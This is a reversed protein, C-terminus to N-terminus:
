SEEPLDPLEFPTSLRLAHMYMLGGHPECIGAAEYIFEFYKDAQDAPVVVTVVEKETTKGALAMHKPTIRGVGRAYHVDVGTLGHERALFEVLTMGQGKPLICFIIKQPEGYQMATSYRPVRTPSM